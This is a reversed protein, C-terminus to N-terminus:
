NTTYMIMRSWFQPNQEFRAITLSMFQVKSIRKRSISVTAVTLMCQKSYTPNYYSLM